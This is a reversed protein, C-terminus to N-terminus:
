FWVVGDSGSFEAVRDWTVIFALTPQFRVAFVVDINYGVTSLLEEDESLRYYVDGALETNIDDWFPAILTSNSLLPFPEPGFSGFSEGFSM